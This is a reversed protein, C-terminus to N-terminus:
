PTLNFVDGDLVAVLKIKGSFNLPTVQYQIAMLHKNAFSALRRTEIRVERGQPSTWVLSRELLGTKFRLARQYEILKGSLMNFPEDEIFLKVVKGNTINLMTQSKEAFAFAAEPYKIIETEYFGNIYTGDISSKEMGPLGEEFSGRLGLYGNGLAFITENRLSNEVKFSDEIVDWETYPYVAEASSTYKSM